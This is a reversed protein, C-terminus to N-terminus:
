KKAGREMRSEKRDIDSVFLSSDQVAIEKCLPHIM